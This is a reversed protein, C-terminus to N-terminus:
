LVNHLFRMVQRPRSSEDDTIIYRSKGVLKLHDEILTEAELVLHYNLNCPIIFVKPRHRGQALNNIYARLGCSLLGLKLHQELAGSRSRTGGPFFLQNQGKELTVTAYEKLTDKYLPATKQRDVRYAGLNRMFFSLLPNTFLNLGAGYTFPPLGLSYLAWALVASDLNSTHTPALIVTGQRHCRKLGQVAGKLELSHSLEPMGDSLIRMPTVANFVLPLTRPLVSTSLSYVWPEFHGLIEQVFRAISRRLLKTLEEDSARGLRSKVRDWFEIDSAWGVSASNLELRKKEHYLTDNILVDLPVGDPLQAQELCAELVRSEVEMVVADRTEDRM